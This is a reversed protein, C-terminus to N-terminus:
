AIGALADLTFGRRFLGMDHCKEQEVEVAVIQTV